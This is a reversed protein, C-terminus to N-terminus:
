EPQSPLDLPLQKLGETRMVEGLSFLGQKVIDRQGENLETITTAGGQRAVVRVAGTDLLELLDPSHTTLLVQGQEAAEHVYDYLLRLAGPHVTLEPEEIALLSPRPRQLLATVMGAVRLTGDSEQASDFWKERRSSTEHRHKFQATLYGAVPQVSVDIIDGTLRGLVEVLDARWTEPEQDKLISVWNAGHRDMPKAPDYKQPQRLADPFISYTAIRRLTTALPAFREDGAILPLVLSMSDVRPHLDPIGTTWQGSDISFQTLQGHARIVARENKVRYEEARDGGLTFEYRADGGPIDLEVSFFVDHPHGASFRRVANIGHRKTISGELGLHMCDSLFQLADVFNSKGSGNRGVLATLRGLQVDVDRGLSRFNSVQLRRIM